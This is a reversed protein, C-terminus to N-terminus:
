PKIECLLVGKEVPQGAKVNLSRITGASPAKIANEMKMAELTLIVTGKKVTDGVSLAVNKILGPMPALIRAPRSSTDAVSKLITQYQQEKPTSLQVPYVYGRYSVIPQGKANRSVICRHTQTGDHLEVVTPYDQLISVSFTTEGIRVCSEDFVCELDQPFLESSSYVTRMIKNKRSKTFNYICIIPIKVIKM